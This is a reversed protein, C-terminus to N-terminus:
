STRGIFPDTSLQSRGFGYKALMLNSSGTLLTQMAGVDGSQQAYTAAMRDNVASVKYGWAERAANNQITAADLHGLYAANAQTDAASGQNIDVGQHALSARQSGIVQRTDQLRRQAAVWGQDVADQAKFDAISANYDNLQKQVDGARKQSFAGFLTSVLSLGAFATGMGMGGGAGATGDIGTPSNPDPNAIYFLGCRLPSRRGVVGDECVKM